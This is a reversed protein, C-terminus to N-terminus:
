CVFCATETPGPEFNRRAYSVFCATESSGPEFNRRAYSVFYVTESSGPEFNRRAYSVFCVTESSGPEFNRTAYSVFCATESSGPQFYTECVSQPNCTWNVTNRHTARAPLLNIQDAYRGYWYQPGGLRKIPYRGIQGQAYPPGYMLSVASGTQHWHKSHTFAKM